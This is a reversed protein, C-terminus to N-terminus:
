KKLFTDLQYNQNRKVINSIQQLRVILLLGHVLAPEPLLQLGPVLLALLILLFMTLIM